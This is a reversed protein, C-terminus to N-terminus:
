IVGFLASLADLVSQLKRLITVVPWAQRSKHTRFNSSHIDSSLLNLM